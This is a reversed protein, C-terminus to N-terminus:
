IDECQRMVSQVALYAEFWLACPVGSTSQDNPCLSDGLVLDLSHCDGCVGCLVSDCARCRPIGERTLPITPVLAIVVDRLAPDLDAQELRMIARQQINM